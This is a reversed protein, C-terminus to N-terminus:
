MLSEESRIYEGIDAQHFCITAMPDAYKCDITSKATVGFGLPIDNTSFIVVGQYQPTNETIRNLGSKSIHHGYLFQQEASPKLWIKYQAYPALHYLATIHLRFKESKTFKGFCTGISTLREPNVMSTLSLIKESVYYVRGKKERFCYVGDPRDLLLKVNSGIYKTLKELVLKTKEETLHKM